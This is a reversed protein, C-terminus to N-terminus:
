NRAAVIEPHRSLDHEFPETLEDIPVRGDTAPWGRCAFRLESEGAAAVRDACEGCLVAIAGDAPLGCQLCCWGHGPVLCKKDLMIIGVPKAPESGPIHLIERECICCPGLRRVECM